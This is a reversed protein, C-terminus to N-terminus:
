FGSPEVDGSTKIATTAGLLPGLKTESVGAFGDTEPFSIKTISEEVAPEASGEASSASEIWANPLKEANVFLQERPPM